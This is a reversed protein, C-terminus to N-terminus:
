TNSNILHQRVQEYAVSAEDASGFYGIHMFKGNVQTSARFPKNRPCRSALSVGQPLHTRHVRRNRNNMSATAPRLNCLRNDTKDGNVHDLMQPCEGHKLSWVFRHLYIRSGKCKAILYGKYHSRWSFAQVHKAFEDDVLFSPVVTGAQTIRSEILTAQSKKQTM